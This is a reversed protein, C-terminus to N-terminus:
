PEEDEKWGIDSCDDEDSQLSSLIEEEEDFAFIEDEEEEPLPGRFPFVDDLDGCTYYSHPVGTEEDWIDESHVAECEEESSYSEDPYLGDPSAMYLSAKHRPSFMSEFLLLM